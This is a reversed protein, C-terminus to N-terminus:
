QERGSETCPQTRYGISNWFTQHWYVALRQELIPEVQEDLAAYLANEDVQM